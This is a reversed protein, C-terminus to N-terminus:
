CEAGPSNVETQLGQIQQILNQPCNDAAFSEGLAESSRVELVYHESVYSM